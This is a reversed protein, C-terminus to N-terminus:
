DGSEPEDVPAPEASEDRSDQVVEVLKKLEGFYHMHAEHYKRPLQEDNLAEDFGRDVAAAVQRLQARSQGVIQPGDIFQRAIIDGATTKTPSQVIKTGFPTPSIPAQGGAGQGRNGFAGGRSQMWQQLAMQMGLGQGLGQAQGQCANAAAQAQQLMLQLAELQSLQDGLLQGAPGIQGAMVGQAMQGLGGGLGRCMGAAAQQAQAMQQLRQKQQENLNPNNQIAQQLLQPNQALQPDLGAQKLLEELEQQQQALQVLQEALDNLQQALQRKQQDNLEGNRVEALLKALANQAAQFDGAALADALHKAPGDQPTRLQKLAQRIAEATMGKPGNIIEDLRKNLDTLKKIADRKVDQRSKLADPDTGEKTLEGLLDSLEDRLQPSEEIPKIVAEIAEDREQWTQAVAPDQAPDDAAFLDLPEVFSVVIALLIALPSLWWRRPSTVAFRRRVEEHVRPERAAHVADQIAARAFADQRDRCHLATSLKERLDLRHDVEVAVQIASRRSAFWWRGAVILGAATVAPMVWRWPVFTAEGLREVLLLVVVAFGLVVIVLHARGLLSSLELRRSAIRLVSRIENM